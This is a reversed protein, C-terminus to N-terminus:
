YRQYQLEELDEESIRTEAFILFVLERNPRLRISAMITRGKSRLHGVRKVTDGITEVIMNSIEQLLISGDSRSGKRANWDVQFNESDTVAECHTM